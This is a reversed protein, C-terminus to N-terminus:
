RMYSVLLCAAIRVAARSCSHSSAWSGGLAARPAPSARFRAASVSAHANREAGLARQLAALADAYSACDCKLEDVQTSVLITGPYTRVM